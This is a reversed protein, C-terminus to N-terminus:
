SRQQHCEKAVIYLRMPSADPEAAQRFQDFWQADILTKNAGRKEPELLIVPQLTCWTSSAAM